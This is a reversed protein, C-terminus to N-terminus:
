AEPNAFSVTERNVTSSLSFVRALPKRKEVESTVFKTEDTPEFSTGGLVDGADPVHGFKRLSVIPPSPFHFPLSEDGVQFDLV